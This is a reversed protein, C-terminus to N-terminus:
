RRRRGERLMWRSPEGDVPVLVETSPDPRLVAPTTGPPVEIRVQPEWQIWTAPGRPTPPGRRVLESEPVLVKVHTGSKPRCAVALLLLLLLAWVPRM